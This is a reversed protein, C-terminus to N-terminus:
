DKGLNDFDLDQIKKLPDDDNSESDSKKEESTNESFTNETKKYDSIVEDGKEKLIFDTAETFFEKFEQFCEKYLFLKSKKYTPESDDQYMKKSETITLYYDGARTEKVDFFYTRVKSAKLIKSFIEKENFDM